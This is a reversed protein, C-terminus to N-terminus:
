LGSTSNDLTIRNKQEMMITPLHPLLVSDLVQTSITLANPNDVLALWPKPKGFPYMGYVIVPTGKAILKDSSNLKWQNAWSYFFMADEAKLRLCSHSAPYGPLAYEHFGVGGYNSINFNWKLIWESSVTSISEKSKWNTFFLGTPTRSSSKGMNTPGTLVLKGNEYAGFYEEYYAFFLIKDVDQLSPLVAPFPSYEFRSLGLPTPVLISDIRKIYNKDVRNIDSLITLGDDTISDAFEKFFTKRGLLQYTVNPKEIPVLKPEEKVISDVKVFEKGTSEAPSEKCSIIVITTLMVIALLNFSTRFFKNM